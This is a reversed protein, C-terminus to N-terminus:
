KGDDEMDELRKLRAMAELLVIRDYISLLDHRHSIFDALLDRIHSTHHEDLGKLKEM